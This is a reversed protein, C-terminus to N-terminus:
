DGKYSWSVKQDKRVGLPVGSISIGPQQARVQWWGFSGAQTKPNILWGYTHWM